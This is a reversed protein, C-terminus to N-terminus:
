QADQTRFQRHCENCAASVKEFQTASLKADGAKTAVVLKGSEQQLKRIAALMEAPRKWVAPTAATTVHDPDTGAPFLDQLGESLGRVAEAHVPLLSRQSVGKKLVLSMANMHAGMAKMVSQRYKVVSSPEDAPSASIAVFIGILSVAFPTRM